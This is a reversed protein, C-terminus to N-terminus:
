PHYQQQLAAMESRWDTDTLSWHTGNELAAIEDNIAATAKAGCFFQFGARDEWTIDGEEDHRNAALLGRLYATLEEITGFVCGEADAIYDKVVFNRAGRPLSRYEKLEFNTMAKM